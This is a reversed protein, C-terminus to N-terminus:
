EQPHLSSTRPLKVRAYLRALPIRVNVSAIELVDELTDYACYGWNGGPDKRYVEVSVNDQAVLIYERLSPIERYFKFKKGRDYAETSPSLVEVIVSPNLLTDEASDLFQATGFVITLDPYTYLGSPAVKVKMDSDFSECTAALQNEIELLLAKKLRSHSASGRPMAYMEGAFFESRVAAAREIALYEEETLRTVPNSAM